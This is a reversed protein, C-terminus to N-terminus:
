IKKRKQNKPTKRKQKKKRKPKKKTMDRVGRGHVRPLTNILASLRQHALRMSIEKM